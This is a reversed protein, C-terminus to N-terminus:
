QGTAATIGDLRWPDQYTVIEIGKEKDASLECAPLFVGTSTGVDGALDIELASLRYNSSGRDPSEGFRLPRRAVVRIKRGKPTPFQMAYVVDYEAVGAFSLHGRAPMGALAAILGPNGGKESAEWLMKQDGATSYKEVRVSVGISMGQQDGQGHAVAQFREIKEQAFCTGALLLLVLVRSGLGRGQTKSLMQM